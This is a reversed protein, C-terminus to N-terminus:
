TSQFNSSSQQSYLEDGHDKASTQPIFSFYSSKYPEILTSRQMANFIYM